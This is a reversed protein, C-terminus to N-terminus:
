DLEVSARTREDRSSRGVVVAYEGSDVTWGADVDYRALARRSVSLSVRQREGGDLAVSAFGGLERSPREVPAEPPEVYVQVVERGPRGSTNEVTVSVSLGEEGGGNEVALDEYAFEAYSEGHGFSFLPDVGDRDFARYGVFIGEDYHVRGDVGPYRREDAVPYDAFRRGFTVPLRGGPDAGYLVDALAAGDAQGPYWTALVAAVDDVWPMTVPGSSRVVVVTRPNADAVAAVLRDQAGPLDLSDRDEGETAGDQVVVVAVDSATAASVAADFDPGDTSRVRGGLGEWPVDFMSPNAVREVGPTARVSSARERLGQIPSVTRTASVESSGGGGVKAEDANPGVVALTEAGSLPLTGDNKLLVTGRRAVERALDHHAGWDVTGAPRDGDLLGLREYLGLVRRAKADVTSESVVGAEVADRLRDGFFDYPYPDPQGDDAVYRDVPRWFLPPDVDLRDSLRLRLMARLATSHPAFLEVVSAGPMELDLGGEAAAVADHTGWWDSMTVGDFGWEERLLGELLRANESMYEGNVRNYATMIASAGAEVAAEFAPLYIERLTREDVVADVEDRWREQNNAVFHKATAAVGNAELGRVYAAGLRAGHQPDESLYEFNRGCTPVRVVNLGPALLVDHGKVRTEAALAAGLRRALDPDWAAGTAITAPFATADGDRVGLPGDVLGLPPIGAREIGPIYGTARGEPDARGRVLRLKEDLTLAAVIADTRAPAM